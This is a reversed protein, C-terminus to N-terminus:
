GNGTPPDGAAADPGAADPEQALRALSAALEAYADPLPQGGSTVDVAVPAAVGGLKATTELAAVLARVGQAAKGTDDETRLLQDLKRIGRRLAEKAPEVADRLEERLAAIVLAEGREEADAVVRCVAMRTARVNHTEALWVVAERYGRPRGDPHAARLWALLPAHLEAPISRSRTM